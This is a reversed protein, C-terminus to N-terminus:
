LTIYAGGLFETCDFIQPCITPKRGHRLVSTPMRRFAAVSEVSGATAGAGLSSDLRSPLACTLPWGKKTGPPAMGLTRVEDFRSTRLPDLGKWAGRRGGRTLRHNSWKSLGPRNSIRKALGTRSTDRKALTFRNSIRKALSVLRSESLIARALRFVLLYDRPLRFVL